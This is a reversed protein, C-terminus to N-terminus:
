AKVKLKLNDTYYLILEFEGNVERFRDDDIVECPEFWVYYKGVKAYSGEKIQVYENKEECFVSFDGSFLETFDYFKERGDLLRPIKDWSNFRKPVSLSMGLSLYLKEKSKPASKCEAGNVKVHQNVLM